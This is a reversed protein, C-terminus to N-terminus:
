LPAIEACVVLAQADSACLSGLIRGDAVNSITFGFVLVNFVVVTAAFDLPTLLGELPTLDSRFAGAFASERVM